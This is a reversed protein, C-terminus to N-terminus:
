ASRRRIAVLGGFALLALAAPEPVVQFDLFFRGSKGYVNAVDDLQFEATFTSGIAADGDVWFTPLVSFLEDGDGVHIESGVPLGDTPTSGLAIKLGPTASHLELHIHASDFAGNWRGGSSNYILEDVGALAHVNRMQLDGYEVDQPRASALGSRFTGAFAGSGPQLSIPPLGTYGEPLRNNSNTNTVTASEAPGEYSYTGIGHFHDGHHFLLTLRNQNPNDLGAYAGFTVTDSGDVGIFYTGVSSSAWASSASGLAVAAVAAVVALNFRKM